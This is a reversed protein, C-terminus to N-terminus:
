VALDMHMRRRVPPPCAACLGMALLVYNGRLSAPIVAPDVVEVVGMM